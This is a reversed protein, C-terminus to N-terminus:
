INFLVFDPDVNTLLPSISSSFSHKLTSFIGVNSTFADCYASCNNVTMFRAVDEEDWETPTVKSLDVTESTDTLKPIM